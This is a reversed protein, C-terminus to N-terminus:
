FSNQFIKYGVYKLFIHIQYRTELWCIALFVDNFFINSSYNRNISELQFYVNKKVKSPWFLDVKWILNKFIAWLTAPAQPQVAAAAASATRIVVIISGTFSQLHSYCPDRLLTPEYTKCRSDLIKSHNSWFALLVLIQNSQDLQGWLSLFEFKVLFQVLFTKKKPWTQVEPYM